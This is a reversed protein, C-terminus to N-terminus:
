RPERVVISHTYEFDGRKGCVVAVGDIGMPEGLDIDVTASYDGDMRILKVSRWQGGIQHVYIEWMYNGSLSGRTVELISYDLTFGRCGHLPENFLFPITYGNSRIMKEGWYGSVCSSTDAQNVETTEGSSVTGVRTYNGGGCGTLMGAMMLVALLVCM